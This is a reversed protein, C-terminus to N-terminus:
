QNEAPITFVGSEFVALGTAALSLIWMGALPNRHGWKLLSRTAEYGEEPGEPINSWQAIPNAVVNRNQIQFWKTRAEMLGEVSNRPMLISRRTILDYLM